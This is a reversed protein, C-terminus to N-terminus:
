KISDISFNEPNKPTINADAFMKKIKEMDSKVDETVTMVDFFGTEKKKYDMYAIVVPVNAALAISHFGKKWKKVKSRTGEPTIVVRLKDAEKYRQAMMESINTRSKRDVPIGGLYRTFWGIGPGFLEKKILLSTEIGAASFISKGIVFDWNSTHPADLIVYKDIDPFGGVHKWGLINLITQAIFKKM